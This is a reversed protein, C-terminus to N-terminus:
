ESCVNMSALQPIYKERQETNGFSDIMWACMNHISLYATTSTCATALAEFIVAADVRSMGSGGFEDRAYIASHRTALVQNLVWHTSRRAVPSMGAFGLSALNRLVDKPFHEEADWREAHPLMESQAFDLAVKQFELQEDTLGSTVVHVSRHPTSSDFSVLLLLSCCRAVCVILLALFTVRAVLVTLL